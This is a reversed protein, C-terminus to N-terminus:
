PGTASEVVLSKEQAELCPTGAERGAIGRERREAPPQTHPDNM